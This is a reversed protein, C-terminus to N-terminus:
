VPDRPEKEGYEGHGLAVRAIKALREYRFAETLHDLPTGRNDIADDRFENALREIESLAASIDSILALRKRRWM